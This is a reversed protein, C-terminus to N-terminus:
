RLEVTKGDVTIREIRMEPTGDRRPYGELKANVGEHLMAQTLGRSEMRQIPALVVTWTKGQYDIKALGHPNRWAVEHLAATVVLTKGADYSGWGHHAVAPAAAALALTAALLRGAPYRPHRPLSHM